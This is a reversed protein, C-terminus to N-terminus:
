YLFPPEPLVAGGEVSLDAGPSRGMLWALLAHRPGRVVPADPAGGLDYVADSGGAGIGARAGSGNGNGAEAGTPRLRMAPTDGRARLAAVVRGLMAHVFDAPWQAPPYGVNLDVHHVLVESLRSDAARAAPREHGQTWRVTRQWAEAPMRRYEEAFRASSDRLDAVLAAAGRGAGAEIQEARAAPSPYEPTEVGTRAWFLLHRGGDANRALHTLVHGRSWGPLLSPGRVEAETLQEAALLLHGTAAAIRDLIASPDFDADAPVTM